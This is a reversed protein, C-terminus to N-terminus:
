ESRRRFGESQGQLSKAQWGPVVRVGGQHYELINGRSRGSEQIYSMVVYKEAM